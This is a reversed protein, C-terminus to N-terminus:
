SLTEIATLCWVLETLNRRGCQEMPATPVIGDVVVGDPEWGSFFRM